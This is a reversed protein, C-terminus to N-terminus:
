VKRDLPNSQFDVGNGCRKMLAQKSALALKM